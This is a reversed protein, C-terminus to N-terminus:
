GPLEVWRSTTKLSTRCGSWIPIQFHQNKPLPSFRLVWLFVERLLTSFWCCVWGVYSTLGPISGPGCQHSALAKVVAGVRSGLSIVIDHLTSQAWSVQHIWWHYFSYGKQRWWLFNKVLYIWWWGLFRSQWYGSLSIVVCNNTSSTYVRCTVNFRSYKWTWTIEIWM